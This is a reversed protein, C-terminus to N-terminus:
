NDDTATSPLNTRQPNQSSPQKHDTAPPSSQTKTRVKPPSHLTVCTTIPCNSSSLPLILVLSPPPQLPLGSSLSFSSHVSLPHSLLREPTRRLLYFLAELQGHCLTTIRRNETPDNLMSSKRNRRIPNNSHPSLLGYTTIHPGPVRLFTTPRSLGLYLRFRVLERATMGWSRTEPPACSIEAFPAPVSCQALPAQVFKSSKYSHKPDLCKLFTSSM